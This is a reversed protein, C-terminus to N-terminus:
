RTQPKQFSSIYAKRVMDAGESVRPHTSMTYVFDDTFSMQLFNVLNQNLLLFVLFRCFIMDPEHGLNSIASYIQYVWIGHIYLAGPLIEPRPLWQLMCPLSKSFLTVIPRSNMRDPDNRANANVMNLSITDPEPASRLSLQGLLARSSFNEFFGTCKFAVKMGALHEEPCFSKIRDKNKM